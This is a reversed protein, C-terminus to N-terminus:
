KENNENSENALQEYWDKPVIRGYAVMDRSSIILPDIKTDKNILIQRDIQNEFRKWKENEKNKDKKHEELNKINKNRIITLIKYYNPYNKELLSNIKSAIKNKDVVKNTENNFYLDSFINYMENLPISKQLWHFLFNDKYEEKINHQIKSFEIFTYILFLGYRNVYEILSKELNEPYFYGISYIMSKGYVEPFIEYQNSIVSLSPFYKKGKKEIMNHEILNRLYYQVMRKQIILEKRKQELKDKFEVPTLEKEYNKLKEETREKLKQLIKNLQLGNSEIIIELIIKEKENSLDKKKKNYIYFGGHQM